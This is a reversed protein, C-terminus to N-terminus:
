GSTLQSEPPPVFDQVPAHALAGSM